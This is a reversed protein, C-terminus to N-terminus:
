PAPLPIGAGGAAPAEASSAFVTAVVRGAELTGEAAILAADRVTSVAAGAAYTLASSAATIAVGALCLANLLTGSGEIFQGFLERIRARDALAGEHLGRLPRADVPFLAIYEDTIAQVVQNVVPASGEPIVDRTLPDVRNVELWTLIADREYTQGTERLIVPHAILMSTIPCMLIREWNEGLPVEPRPLARLEALDRTPLADVLARIIRNPTRADDPAGQVTRGDDLIVARDMLTEIGTVPDRYVLHESFFAM